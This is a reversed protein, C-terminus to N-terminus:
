CSVCRRGVKDAIFLVCIMVASIICSSMLTYLMPDFIKLSRVYVGGYQSTFAQGTTQQFFNVVVVIITRKLNKGQFLEIFKGQEVENGLAFELERFEAEVQEETFAGERLKKLSFKAEEM